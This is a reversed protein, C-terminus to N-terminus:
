EASEAVACLYCEIDGRETRSAGRPLAEYLADLDDCNLMAYPHPDDGRYELEFRVTVNVPEHISLHSDSEKTAHLNM